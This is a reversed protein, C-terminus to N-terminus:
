ASGKAKFNMWIFTALFGFAAFLTVGQAVVFAVCLKYQRDYRQKYRDAKDSFKEIEEDSGRLELVVDTLQCTWLYDAKAKFRSSFFFVQIFGLAATLALAIWTCVLWRTGGKFFFDPVFPALTLGLMASSITIFIKSLGTLERVYDTRLADIKDHITFLDHKKEKQASTM